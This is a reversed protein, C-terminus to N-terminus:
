VTKSLHLLTASQRSQNKVQVVEALISLAVEAPDKGGIPLGIPAYLNELSAEAVGLDMLEKKFQRVKPASGILGLYARPRELYRRVLLQDTAHCRTIVAIYTQVDTAPVDKLFERDTYIVEDASPHKERSAFEARDDVVTVHFLDTAAALKSLAQAVHGGGFILLRPRPAYREFLVRVLGQCYMGLENKTLKYERFVPKEDRMSSMADRLVEAEFTGGGITFEFSGDAHVIIRAGPRQPCSGKVEAISAVVFERREGLLDAIRRHIAEADRRM